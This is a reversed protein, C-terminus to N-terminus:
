FPGVLVAAGQFKGHLLYQFLGSPLKIRLQRRQEHLRDLLPFDFGFLLLPPKACLFTRGRRACPSNIDRTQRAEQKGYFHVHSDSVYHTHEGTVNM